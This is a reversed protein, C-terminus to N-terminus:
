HQEVYREADAASRLATRQMSYNSSAAVRCVVGSRDQKDM